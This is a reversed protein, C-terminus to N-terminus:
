SMMMNAILDEQRVQELPPMALEAPKSQAWWSKPVRGHMVPPVSGAVVILYAVAKEIPADLFSKDLQNWLSRRYRIGGPVNALFFSKLFAEKKKRLEDARAKTALEISAGEAIIRLDKKFGSLLVAALYAHNDTGLSVSRQRRRGDAGRVRFRLRWGHKLETYSRCEVTGDRLFDPLAALVAARVQEPLAVIDPHHSLEEIDHQAPNM